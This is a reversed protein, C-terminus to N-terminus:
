PSSASSWARSSAAGAARRHRGVAPDVPHHDPPHLERLPHRARYLRRRAGGAGAPAPQRAVAPLGAGHGPVLRPHDGARRDRADHRECLRRRREADQGAGPQVLDHQRRVPGPSQRCAADHRVRLPDGVVAPDDDGARHQRGGRDLGLRPRQRRDPQHAPQAGGGGSRRRGGRAAGGLRHRRDGARRQDRRRLHQCLHGEAVGSEGLVGALGGHRRPVPQACQLHDLGPAPRLRRLADGLHQARRCASGRRRMATSRSISRCAASSSTPISM